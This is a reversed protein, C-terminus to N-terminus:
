KVAELIVTATFRSENPNFDWSFSGNYKQAVRKISKTGYGHLSSNKKRSILKIGSSDPSTNCSNVVSVVVYSSNRTYISFRIKKEQSSIAAEAANEFLNDLLAIIDSDSM